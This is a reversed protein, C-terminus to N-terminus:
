IDEGASTASTNLMQAYDRPSKNGLSSHRRTTDYWLLYSRLDARAEHESAYRKGRLLEVQITGNLSEMMGNGPGGGRACSQQIGHASLVRQYEDSVYTSGQDSHHIANPPIAHRQLVSRLTTLTLATDCRKGLNWGLVRRTCADQIINLYRWGEKTRIFKIDTYLVANPQSAYFRKNVLDKPLIGPMAHQTPYRRKPGKKGRLNEERMLALTMRPSIAGCESQVDSCVRRYGYIAKSRQHM